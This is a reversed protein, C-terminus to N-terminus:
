AKKPMPPPAPSPDSAPVYHWGMAEGDGLHLDGFGGPASTWRGHSEIFLAWYPLNLPFCADYHSPERDVQCVVKGSSVTQAQYEIGSEDMLTQGDISGGDFAVCADLWAGSMHQVVVYAHHASSGNACKLNSATSSSCSPQAGCAAMLLLGFAGIVLSRSM